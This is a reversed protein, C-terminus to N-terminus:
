NPEVRAILASLYLGENFAAPVPHDVDQFVRELVLAQREARAAGIALARHLEHLGLGASCSCLILLGGPVTAEIAARALRQMAKQAKEFSARGPMLKPPDCLVIDYGGEKAATELAKTADGREIRMVQQLRNLEICHKATQVAAESSEVSLVEKAGARAMSMGAAGVFAYCDLVRCGPAFSSLRARLARMDLYFGTKQGLTLPIEFRLGHERFTLQELDHEGFSAPQADFGELKAFRAPTREIIARPSLVKQLAAVIGQKRQQMGITLFQVMLVDEFYDVILGPLGDGEANFARMANTPENPLGLRNRLEVAHTIRQIILAQDLQQDPQRTYLRLRIASKPSYLGRGLAKGHPDLVRVEDGAAVQGVVKSIGQAYVWPHGAWVPRVHGPKLVIDAM